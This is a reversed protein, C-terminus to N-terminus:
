INLGKVLLTCMDDFQLGHKCMWIVYFIKFKIMFYNFKKEALDPYDRLSLPLHLGVKPNALTNIVNGLALLSRNINAGERLRAGKANTASARESGALDILSMKAVRVNPNLTASKDQQRM